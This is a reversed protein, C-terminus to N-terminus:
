GRGLVMKRKEEDLLFALGQAFAGISARPDERSLVGYCTPGDGDQLLRKVRGPERRRNIAWLLGPPLIWQYHLGTDYPGPPPVSRGNALDMITRPIDVGAAIALGVSMWIRPNVELLRYAGDTPDRLIDMHAPGVWQVERFLDLLGDVWPDPEVSVASIAPGGSDPYQRHEEYVHLARVESNGDFVTGVSFHGGSQDVFEQVIADGCERTVSRYAAPLEGPTEVREIGRSGMGDVPKVLVPFEATAGIEAIATESPYYTTPMPVGVAEALKACRRKDNLRRITEPAALLTKTGAPLRDRIGAIGVTTGYRIPIVLDYREQRALTLITTRFAEMEEGPSPYLHSETVFASYASINHEFTEGVHVELGHRALHRAIALCSPARGGTLLVKEANM